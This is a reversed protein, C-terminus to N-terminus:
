GSLAFAGLTGPEAEYGGGVVYLSRGDPSLVGARPDILGRAPACPPSRPAHEYEGASSLDGTAEAACTAPSLGLRQYSGRDAALVLTSLAGFGAGAGYSAGDLRYLTRGDGTVLLGYVVGLDRGAGVLAGDAAPRFRWMHADGRVLVGGGGSLALVTAFGLGRAKLCRGHAFIAPDRVGRDVRCGRRGALQRLSGDARRHFTLVGSGGFQGDPRDRYVGVYVTRGDANLALSQASGLGRAGACVRRGHPRLRGGAALCGLARLRGSAPDRALIGVAGGAVYLTRGAPDFTLEGGVVPARRCVGVADRGAPDACRDHGHLATLSGSVPDRRFAYLTSPFSRVIGGGNRVDFRTGVAYLSGGDPSLAISTVSALGPARTCVAAPDLADAGSDTLCAAAGPLPTLRGSAPDRAFAAIGGGPPQGHDVDFVGSAGVYVNRGDASVVVDRAGGLAGAASCVGAPAAARERGDPTFCGSPGPLQHLTPTAATTPAPTSATAPARTLGLAPAASILALAIAAALRRPPLLNM